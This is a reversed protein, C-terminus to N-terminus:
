YTRVEPNQYFRGGAPKNKDQWGHEGEEDSEIDNCGDLSKRLVDDCVQGARRAFEEDTEKSKRKGISGVINDLTLSLLRGLADRERRIPNGSKRATVTNIEIVGCPTKLVIDASVKRGDTTERPIEKVYELNMGNRSGGGIHLEYQQRQLFDLWKPFFSRTAEVCTRIVTNTDTTTQFSGRNDVYPPKGLLGKDKLVEAFVDTLYHQKDGLSPEQGPKRIPAWFDFSDPGIPASPEKEARSTLVDLRAMARSHLEWQWQKAQDLRDERARTEQRLRRQEEWTEDEHKQIEGTPDIVSPVHPRVPLVDDSGQPDSRLSTGPVASPGTSERGIPLTQRFEPVSLPSLPRSLAPAPRPVAPPLRPIMPEVVPGRALQIGSLGEGDPAGGDAGEQGGGAIQRAAALTNPIAAFARPDLDALRLITAAVATQKMPDGSALLTGLENVAAAPAIGTAETYHEILARRQEPTPLQRIVPAVADFHHDVAQRDVPLEPDLKTGGDALAQEVRAVGDRRGAAMAKHREARERLSMAYAPPMGDVAPDGHTSAQALAQIGRRALARPQEDQAAQTLRSRNPEDLDPLAAPDGLLSLAKDPDERTLRDARKLQVLAHGHREMRGAADSDYLGSDAGRRLTRGFDALIANRRTEDDEGAAHHVYADLGRKLRSLRAPQEGASGDPPPRSVAGDLDALFEEVASNEM